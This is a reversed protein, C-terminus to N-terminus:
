RPILEGLCQRSSGLDVTTFERHAPFSSSCTRMRCISMGTRERNYGRKIMKAFQVPHRIAHHKKTERQSKRGREERSRLSLPLRQNATPIQRVSFSPANQRNTSNSRCPSKCLTEIVNCAHISVSTSYIITYQPNPLTTTPVFYFSNFHFPPDTLSSINHEITSHQHPHTSDHLQQPLITKRLQHTKAWSLHTQSISLSVLKFM